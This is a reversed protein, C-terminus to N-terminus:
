SQMMTHNKNCSSKFSNLMEIAMKGVDSDDGNYLIANSFVLLVDRVVNDVSKYYGTLLRKKVLGLDMPEKIVDFYDPLGLEIPDVPNSFIWGYAHNLLADVLPLMSCTIGEDTGSAPSSSQRDYKLMPYLDKENRLSETKQKKSELNNMNQPMQFDSLSRKGHDNFSLNGGGVNSLFPDFTKTQQQNNFQESMRAEMRNVDNQMGRSGDDNKRSKGQLQSHRSILKQLLNQDELFQQQCKKLLDQQKKLKRAQESDLQVNSLKHQRLQAEQQQQLRQLLLHQQNLKFEETQLKELTLHKEETQLTNKTQVHNSKYESSISPFSIQQVDFPTDNKDNTDSDSLLDLPDNSQNDSSSDRMQIAKMVPACIECTATRKLEKCMRYHNLVYRSTVCHETTCNNDKCNKMHGWLKVMKPCITSECKDGLTCKSAHRLLILRQQQRRITMKRLEEDKTEQPFLEANEKAAKNLNIHLQAIAPHCPKMSKQKLMDEISAGNIAHRNRGLENSNMYGMTKDPNQSQILELQHRPDLQQSGHQADCQTSSLTHQASVADMTGGLQLNNKKLLSIRRHATASMTSKGGAGSQSLIGFFPAENKHQGRHDYQSKADKQQATKDIGSTRAIAHLRKRLTNMDVYEDKSKASRYLFEELRKAMVSIRKQSSLLLFNSEFDEHRM